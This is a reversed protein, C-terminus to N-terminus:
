TRVSSRSASAATTSSTLREICGDAHTRFYDEIVEGKYGTCLIFDTHGFHAYYRM